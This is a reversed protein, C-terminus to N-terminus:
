PFHFYKHFCPTGIWAFFSGSISPLSRTDTSSVTTQELEVIQVVLGRGVEVRAEIAAWSLVSQAAPSVRPHHLAAPLPALARGAPVQLFGETDTVGAPPAVLTM